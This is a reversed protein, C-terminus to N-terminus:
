QALERNLPGESAPPAAVEALPQLRANRRARLARAKRAVRLSVQYLWCGVQEAQRLSGARRALVLFTAQFADDADHHGLLRRCVGLVMGGHRAVLEAFAEADGRLAFREVLEGDPTALRPHAELLRLVEDTPGQM